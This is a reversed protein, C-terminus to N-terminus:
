RSLYPAALFTRLVAQNDVLAFRVLKVAENSNKNKIVLLVKLSNYSKKLM